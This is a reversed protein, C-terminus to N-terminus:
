RRVGAKKRLQVTTHKEPPKIAVLEFDLVECLEQILDKIAIKPRWDIPYHEPSREGIRINSDASLYSVMKELQQVRDILTQTIPDITIEKNRKFIFM